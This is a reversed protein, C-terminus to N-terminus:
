AEGVLTYYDGECWEAWGEKWDKKNYPTWEESRDRNIEKIIQSLSWNITAGTETEILKM